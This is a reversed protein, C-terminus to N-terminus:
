LQQLDQKEDIVQKLIRVENLPLISTQTIKNTDFISNEILIKLNLYNPKNLQSSIFSDLNNADDNEGLLKNQNQDTEDEVYTSTTTSYISLNGTSTSLHIADSDLQSQLHNSFSDQLTQGNSFNMNTTTTNDNDNDDLHHKTTDLADKHLESMTSRYQEQLQFKLLDPTTNNLNYRDSSDNHTLKFPSNRVFAETDIM